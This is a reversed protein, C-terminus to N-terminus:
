PQPRLGAARPEAAGAPRPAGAVGTEVPPAAAAVAAPPTDEERAEHPGRERTGLASDGVASPAQCAPSWASARHQRGIAAMSRSAATAVNQDSMRTPTDSVSM